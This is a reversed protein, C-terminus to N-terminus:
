LTVQVTGNRAGLEVKVTVIVPENELTDPPQWCVSVTTADASLV